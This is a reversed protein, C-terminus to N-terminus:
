AAVCRKSAAIREAQWQIIQQGTWGKIRGGDTLTFPAPIRKDRIADSLATSKLGFYKYGDRTRVIQNPDLENAM